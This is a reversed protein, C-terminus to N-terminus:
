ENSRIQLVAAADNLHVQFGALLKIRNESKCGAASSTQFCFIREVLNAYPRFYTLTLFVHSFLAFISISAPLASCLFFLKCFVFSLPSQINEPSVRATAPALHALSRFFVAFRLATNQETSNIFDSLTYVIGMM